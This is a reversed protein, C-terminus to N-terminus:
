NLLEYVGAIGQGGGICATLMGYKKHVRKLEHILHTSLIASTYDIHSAIYLEDISMLFGQIWDLIRVLLVRILIANCM